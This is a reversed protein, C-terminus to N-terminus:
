VLMRVESDRDGYVAVEKVGRGDADFGWLRRPITSECLERHRVTYSEDVTKRSAFTWSRWNRTDGSEEIERNVERNDCVNRVNYTSGLDDGTKTADGVVSRGVVSRKPICEKGGGINNAARVAQLVEVPLLRGAGGGDGRGVSGDGCCSGGGEIKPSFAAAEGRRCATAELCGAFTEVASALCVQEAAVAVPVRSRGQRAESNGARDRDVLREDGHMASGPPVTRECVCDRHSGRRDRHRPCHCNSTNETGVIGGKVAGWADQTHSGQSLCRGLGSDCCEGATGVKEMVMRPATSVAKVSEESRPPLLPTDQLPKSAPPPSDFRRRGARSVRRGGVPLLPLPTPRRDPSAPAPKPPTSPNRPNKSLPRQLKAARERLYSALHVKNTILRQHQSTCSCSRHLIAHTFPTDYGINYLRRQNHIIYCPRQNSPIVDEWRM